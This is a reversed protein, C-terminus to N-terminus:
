LPVPLRVAKARGAMKWIEREPRQSGDSTLKPAAHQSEVAAIISALEEEQPDFTREVIRVYEDLFHTSLTGEVFAPHEFVIRHFPITTHVGGIRFEDLARIMRRRAEERDRGRVIMKAIMSDFYPPIVYGPYVCSDIRVGPGAPFRLSTIKGPAPLFDAFPNECTIRCEFAWGNMQIDKQNLRMKEGSALRLQEAVLDCGTVEETVPHEVQLRTNVELFYFNGKMDQLFEFTGLSTYGSARAGEVAAKGLNARMDQTVACSPAEEIMKQFRRQISCEREGLYVVNGYNDAIIQVEIHRPKELYAELYLAASGFATKAESQAQPFAERLEQPNRVLRMGRGGGGLSAKILLPYGLSKAAELAECLRMTPHPTGPVVPLGCKQMLRRAKNKDGLTEIAEARPGIFVIGTKRCLDAFEANEALFGYGPHIAEAGCTKAVDIIRAMNLYSERPELEEMSYAEDALRVALSDRDVEAFIVATKISSERCARIVRVAIEGRNAILIKNFM